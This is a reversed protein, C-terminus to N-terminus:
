LRASSGVKLRRCARGKKPQRARISHRIRSQVELSLETNWSNHSRKFDVERGRPMDEANRTTVAVYIQTVPCKLPRPAARAVAILDDRDRALGALASRSNPKLDALQQYVSIPSNVSGPEDDDSNASSRMDCFASDAESAASELFQREIPHLGDGKASVYAATLLGACGSSMVLLAAMGFAGLLRKICEYKTNAVSRGIM